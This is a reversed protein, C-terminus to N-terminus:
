EIGLAQEITYRGAPQRALFAAAQLAGRAFLDRNTASHILTIREGPGAFRVEHEGIVDGSRIAHIRDDPLNARGRQRLAAAIRLATGSPADKKLTHHTEVIDIDFGAGAGGSGASGGSGLLRAAEAALHALVAVGLSTNAARLLAISKAADDLMAQTPSSLGTTGVLLACPQQLAIACAERAGEDSSFDIVVDVRPTDASAGRRDTTTPTTADRQAAIIFRPDEAALRVIAAGMRGDAGNILARIPAASSSQRSDQQPMDFEL